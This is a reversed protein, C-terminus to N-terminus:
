NKVGGEGLTRENAMVMSLFIATLGNCLTVNCGDLTIMLIFIKLSALEM